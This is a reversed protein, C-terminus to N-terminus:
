KEKGYQYNLLNLIGGINESSSVYSIIGKDPHVMGVVYTECALLDSAIEMRFDNVIRSIDVSNENAM